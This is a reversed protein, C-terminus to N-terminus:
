SVDNKIRLIFYTQRKKNRTLAARYATKYFKTAPMLGCGIEM